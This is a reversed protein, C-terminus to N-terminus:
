PTEVAQELPSPRAVRRELVLYIAPLVFLTLLTAVPLGLAIVSALPRQVDSGVGTALAAPVLGLTAVTATMLVPRLRETAADLVARDLPMGTDRHRNLSAVMLVGNQVAVGFLAIFGVASSVNLTMGRLHLAAMGGLVSLPVTVLILAAHRATGFAGYLLIFILALSLPLIVALRAQARQQNEFQGGWAIEYATHDYQVDKALRGQAESLFSALDRGRLNVKVTLHRRNAERTITSEGSRLGIHAVESLPVRTGSATTLTLNGIAEPSNRAEEIFRVAIDYRREALFLNAVAKGGIAVEILDKIDTINIGHRAAAARDVTVVLEPLPPEQDIAVDAAGRVGELVHAMDTGIRRMEGYDRGFIKIVLESHAGAIKDFVMDIIPQSFGVSVGPIQHYRADLKEILARKTEGKPWTAYPTLGVACEIHSPTWPDMGDDTRGLQTVVYSVEPFERTARRLDDALQSGAKLTVGPPLQVQLWISGEDLEPLFEKGVTIGLVAALGAALLAPPVVWLPRRLIRALLRGYGSRLAEVVPNRFPKGTRPGLFLFIGPLLALAALTAVSLAYGVTIAMPSFLKKEVRQFAFLPLYATIIIAMSFFIPRSVEAAAKTATEETLRQDPKAERTRLINEIVVIGGDAIVGFDIAGLSLLNAPVDTLAMLIFAGLLSLPITVAVILASRPSGLFLLLVMLVLGIGEFLTRRVTHVTTNVLDTRDLYPVVTVGPPLLGHNLDAVKKHIGELVRTPNSGRLLLVIGEVSDGNDDKGLIGRRELAGLRLKGLDKLLIPTGAKQTVVTNGLDDLSHLFGIGRVVFGQDGRVLISGGANANNANIADTVRSLSLNYQVLKAPDVLVQFQTTEGGFSSVDAVGTVQKLTPVVVWEQIEHLERPSHATSELTYRYIEGVPSTLPDLDPTAGPPLDLGTLRERIRQRAWYDDAGDNFVLTILSLGFTSKSRMVHLGPVGNLAREIPITVQLEVEEAAHGEFQTIVQATTDAIDPYAEVSLLSLSLAGFVAIGLFILAVLARRHLCLAVFREIM